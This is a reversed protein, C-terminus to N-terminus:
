RRASSRTDAIGPMSDAPSMQDSGILPLLMPVLKVTLLL